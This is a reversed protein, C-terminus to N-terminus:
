VEMLQEMEDKETESAIVITCPDEDAALILQRLLTYEGPNFGLIIVHDEAHVPSDGRRLSVIKDEIMSTVLGILVSTFLIGLIAIIAYFVLPLLAPPDNPDPVYEPMWANILTVFGNWLNQMFNGFDGTLVTMLLIILTVLLLSGGFLLLILNRQGKMIRSDFWYQMRERFSPKM